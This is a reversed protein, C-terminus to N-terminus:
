DLHLVAGDDHQQWPDDQYGDSIDKTTSRGGWVFLREGGVPAVVAGHRQPTDAEALPEWRESSGDFVVGGLRRPRDTDRMSVMPGTNLLVPRGSIDFADWASVQASVTPADRQVWIDHSAEYEAYQHRGYAIFRGRAVGALRRSGKPPLSMRRWEDATPDYIAGDVFDEGEVPRPPLEVVAGATASCSSGDCEETPASRHVQPKAGEIPTAAGYGGGVILHGDVWLGDVGQRPELPSDALRHWTDTAPDYAAGDGFVQEDEGNDASGAGGGWVLLRDGTWAWAFETRPALPSAAMLSWGRGPTWVAGDGREGRESWGGWVLLQEGTWVAAELNRPRLSASPTATWEKAAFDYFAAAIPYGRVVMLRGDDVMQISDIEDLPPPPVLTWSRTAVDYVAGDQPFTQRGDEGWAEGGLVVVRREDSAAMANTRPGIPSPPVSEWIGVGARPGSDFVVAPQRLQPLLVTSALAVVAVVAIGSVALQRHRRRRGVRALANFDPEVSPRAAARDLVDHLDSPM